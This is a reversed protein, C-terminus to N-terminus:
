YSGRAQPPFSHCRSVCVTGRLAARLVSFPVPIRDALGLATNGCVRWRFLLTRAFRRTLGM